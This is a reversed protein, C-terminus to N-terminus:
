TDERLIPEDQPIATRMNEKDNFTQKWLTPVNKRFLNKELSADIGLSSSEKSCRSLHGSRTYKLIVVTSTFVFM